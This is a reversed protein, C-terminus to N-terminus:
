HSHAWTTHANEDEPDRMRVISLFRCNWYAKLYPKFFENDSTTTAFVNRDLIPKFQINTPATQINVCLWDNVDTQMQFLYVHNTEEISQPVKGILLLINNLIGPNGMFLTMLISGDDSVSRYFIFEPVIQWSYGCVIKWNVPMQLGFGM